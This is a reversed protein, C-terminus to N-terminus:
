GRIAGPFRESSSPDWTVRTARDDHRVGMNSVRSGLHFPNGRGPTDLGNWRSSNRRTSSCAVRRRASGPSKTTAAASFYGSTMWFDINSVSSATRIPSRGLSELRSPPSLFCGFVLSAMLTFRQAPMLHRVRRLHFNSFSFRSEKLERRILRTILFGSIVFFPDVCVYGGSAWSFEAHCLIVALVALSRLGDIDSRCREGPM